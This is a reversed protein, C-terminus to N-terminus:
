ETYRFYKNVFMLGTSILGGMGLVGGLISVGGYLVSWTFGLMVALYGAIWVFLPVSKVKDATNQRLVTDLASKMNHGKAASARENGKSDIWKVQYLKVGDGNAMLTAETAYAKSM